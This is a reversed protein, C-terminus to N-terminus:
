RHLISSSVVGTGAQGNLSTVTPNGNCAFNTTTGQIQGAVTFLPNGNGDLGYSYAYLPGGTPCFYLYGGDIPSSAVGGYFSGGPIVIQQLAIMQNTFRISIFNLFYMSADPSSGGNYFGGLNDADMVYVQSVFNTSHLNEKYIHNSYM